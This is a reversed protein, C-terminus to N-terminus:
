RGEEPTAPERLGPVLERLRAIARSTSSKVAGIGIGLARATEAETMDEFFRLVLVTKQRPPLLRLGALLAQQLVVRETGDDGQAVPGAADLPLETVRAARRRRRDVALHALTVRAYAEPAGDLRSWKRATRELASQVLDEAHNRDGTLLYATRLLRPGSGAVFAEFAREHGDDVRGGIWCGTVM